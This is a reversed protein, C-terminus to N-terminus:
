PPPAAPGLVRTESPIGMGLGLQMAYLVFEPVEPLERFGKQKRSRNMYTMLNADMVVPDVSLWVEPLSDTYNANYAPGAIYQYYELSVLNLAWSASLEPIAAIEAVAVPANAPSNLFRIGNSINWLTANVLAGSLGTGPHHSAVPLNIWFDVEGFLIDPLYSKRAEVPDLEIAPRLMERGLPSTFERPLPSEYYWTPSNLLGTNLAYVQINRYYSGDQGVRSLPPLYGSDRLMEERADLICLGEEKFGRQLLAEIVANVLNKPTCLGAGSSSYIKLAVKGHQGPVLKKGTATEFETLLKEVQTAYSAESFDILHAKWLWGQYPRKGDEFGWFTGDEANALFPLLTM